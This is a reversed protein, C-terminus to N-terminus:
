GRWQRKGFSATINAPYIRARVFRPWCRVPKPAKCRWSPLAILYIKLSCMALFIRRCGLWMKIGTPRMSSWWIIHMVGGAENCMPSYRVRGPVLSAFNNTLLMQINALADPGSFVVEGMHSVDFLGCQQRVAMHEAIVGGAYQVPLLYGGFPVIKGQAAVHEDYLPTKLEM